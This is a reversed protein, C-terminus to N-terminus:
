RVRHLPHENKANKDQAGNVYSSFGASQRDASVIAEDSPGSLFRLISLPFPAPISDPFAPTLHHLFFPASDMQDRLHRINRDAGHIAGQVAPSADLFGSTLANQLDRPLYAVRWIQRGASKGNGLGASANTYAHRPFDVEEVILEPASDQVFSATNRLESDFKNVTGHLDEPFSIGFGEFLEELAGDIANNEGRSVRPIERWENVSRLLLADVDHTHRGVGRLAPTRTDDTYVGPQIATDGALQHALEDGRTRHDGDDRAHERGLIMALLGVAKGFPKRLMARAALDYANNFPVFVLILAELLCKIEETTNWSKGSQVYIGDVAKRHAVGESGPAESSLYFQDGGVEEGLHRGIELLSGDRRGNILLRMPLALYRDPDQGVIKRALYVKGRCDV